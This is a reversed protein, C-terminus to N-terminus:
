ADGDMAVGASSRTSGAATTGLSSSASRPLKIRVSKKAIVVGVFGLNVIAFERLEKDAVSARLLARLGVSRPDWLKGREDILLASM